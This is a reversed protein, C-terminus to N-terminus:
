VKLRERRDNKHENEIKKDIFRQLIKLKQRKGLGRHMSGIETQERKVM